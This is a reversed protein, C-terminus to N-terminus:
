KDRIYRGSKGGEKMVLMIDSIIIDKDVGNCMDYITLSAVAVATLAEMEVGTKGVTKVRGKISIIGEEFSPKFSIDVGTIMLPHCMPILSDVRKAAMIGAIRAVEYVDGKAIKKDAIMSLTEGRMKVKGEAIAERLTEEKESVDVMKSGGEEDLHTFRKM